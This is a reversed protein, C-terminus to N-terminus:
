LYYIGRIPSIEFGFRYVGARVWRVSVNRHSYIMM